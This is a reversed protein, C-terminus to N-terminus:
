SNCSSGASFVAGDRDLAAQLADSFPPLERHVIPYVLVATAPLPGDTDRLRKTVGAALNAGASAGGLHLSAVEGLEATHEVAWLWGALVDNSPAPFHVGDIAMRYELSLVPVGRAALALGVWNAEPM